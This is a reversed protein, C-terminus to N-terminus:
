KANEFNEELSNLALMEEEKSPPKGHWEFKYEMFNVGKGPVTNAIIIVPSDIIDLVTELALYIEQMNNGDIEFVELGFSKFKDKINKLDLIDKTFGDIQINNRDIIWIFRKIQHHSLFMAAEWAQGENLEGDSGIVVTHYNLKKYESNIAMGIGISIGQGLPGSSNEIGPLSQNHPHGQLRSDIQRLSLLEEERFFGKKALTVYLVPCVHGASLILRDRSEEQANFPNINLFKFYLATFIDTLGLAGASHGSEAHSLTKVVSVRIEYAIKELKKIDQLKENNLSLLGM